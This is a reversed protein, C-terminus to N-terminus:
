RPKIARFNSEIRGDREGLIVDAEAEVLLEDFAKIPMTEVAVATRSSSGVSHRRLEATRFPTHPPVFDHAPGSGPPPRPNHSMMTRPWGKPPRAFAAMPRPPLPTDRFSTPPPPIQFARRMDPESTIPHVNQTGVTQNKRIDDSPYRDEDFTTGSSKRQEAIDSLPLGLKPSLSPVLTSSYRTVDSLRDRDVLYSLPPPPALPGDDETRKDSQSPGCSSSKRNRSSGTVIGWIKALGKKKKTKDQVPQDGIPDPEMPPWIQSRRAIGFDIPSDVRQGDAENQLAVHMDMMSGSIESPALSDQSRWGASLNKMGFFRTRRPSASGLSHIDSFSAQSYARPLDSRELPATLVSTPQTSAAQSYRSDPKAASSNDTNANFSQASIISNVDVDIVSSRSSKRARKEEKRRHERAEKEERRVDVREVIMGNELLTVERSHSRTPHIPSSPSLPPKIRVSGSDDAPSPSTGTDYASRRLQLYTDRMRNDLQKAEQMARARALAEAELLARQSKIYTNITQQRAAPERLNASLWAKLNQEMLLGGRARPRSPDDAIVGNAEDELERRMLEDYMVDSEREWIGPSTVDVDILGQDRIACEVCVEEQPTTSLAPAATIYAPQQAHAHPNLYVPPNDGPSTSFPLIPPDNPVGSKSFGSRRLVTKAPDQAPEQAILRTEVSAHSPSRPFSDVLSYREVIGRSTADPRLSRSVVSRPPDTFSSPSNESKPVLFTAGDKDTITFHVNIRQLFESVSDSEDKWIEGWDDDHSMVVTAHPAEHLIYENILKAPNFIKAIPSLDSLIVDGKEGAHRRGTPSGGFFNWSWSSLSGKSSGPCSGGPTNMQLQLDAISSTEVTVTGFIKGWLGTALLISLGHIFITQNVPDNTPPPDHSKRRAPNKQGHTGSWRYAPYITGAVATRKFFLQFDERATRYTAMGWSRAKECGTVLYLDGNALGRGRAGNIYKYWSHAHEAAYARMNEVNDLKQLHAGDPLALVAGQMGDCSFVFDGGPFVDSRADLDLRQVTSSSVYDGPEYNKHLLDIPDYPPIPLFGEPTRNAHIPHERPLFINFFFDFIGEPTVRGVDGIAVGHERYAAPLNIKPEPM